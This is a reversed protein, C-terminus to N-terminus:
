VGPVTAIQWQGGFKKLSVLAQQTPTTTRSGGAISVISWTCAATATDGTVQIDGAVVLNIVLVGQKVKMSDVLTQRISPWVQKVEAENRHVNFAANFRDFVARIAKKELELQQQQQRELDLKRQKEQEAQRQRDLETQRQRDLEDIRKQADGVHPNGSNENVFRVLSNKDSKDVNNWVLENIASSADSRHKGGPFRTLYSRLAAEDNRKTQEWVLDDLRDKM